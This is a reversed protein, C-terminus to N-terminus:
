IHLVIIFYGFIYMKERENIHHQCFYKSNLRKGFM